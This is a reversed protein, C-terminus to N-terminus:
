LLIIGETQKGLSKIRRAEADILDFHSKGRKEILVFGDYDKAAKVAEADRLLDGCVPIREGVFPLFEQVTEPGASSVLAIRRGSAMSLLSQATAKGATEYDLDPEGELKRITKEFLRKKKTPLTGILPFSCRTLVDNIDQLKGSLLKDLCVLLFSGFLGLIFFVAAFIVAKKVINRSTPRANASRAQLALLEEEAAAAASRNDEILQEVSAMENDKLTRLSQEAVFLDAQAKSLKDEQENRRDNMDWDTEHGVYQAIVHVTFDGFTESLREPLAKLLYDTVERAIETDDHYACIEVFQDDSTSVSVLESIYAPDADTKMIRRINELLESDFPYLKAFAKTISSQPDVTLGPADPSVPAETEVYLTVRSVGRHFPDMAYYLNNDLYEQQKEVLIRAREAAAEAQPIDLELLQKLAGEAESVSNNADVLATEAERLAEESVGAGAHSARYAGFLAGLLAFVLVFLVIPKIKKLFAACLDSIRISIESQENNM